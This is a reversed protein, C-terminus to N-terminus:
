RVIATGFSVAPVFEERLSDLVEFGDRGPIQVDLFVLEPTHARIAAIAQQGDACEGVVQFESHEELFARIKKRSPMEDDVILTRLKMCVVGMLAANVVTCEYHFESKWLSEVMIGTGRSYARASEM